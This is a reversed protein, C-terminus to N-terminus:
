SCPGLNVTMARNLSFTALYVSSRGKWSAADGSVCPESVTVAELGAVALAAVHASSEDLPLAAVRLQKREEIL